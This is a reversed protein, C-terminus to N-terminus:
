PNCGSASLSRQQRPSVEGSPAQRFCSKIAWAISSPPVRRGSFLSVIVNGTIKVERVWGQGKRHGCTACKRRKRLFQGPDSVFNTARMRFVSIKPSTQAKLSQKLLCVTSISRARSCKWQAMPLGRGSKPRAIGTSNSVTTIPIACISRKASGTIRRAM